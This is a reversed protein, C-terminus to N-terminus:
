NKLKKGSVFVEMVVWLAICGGIIVSVLVILPQIIGEVVFSPVDDGLVEVLANKEFKKSMWFPDMRGFQKHIYQQIDKANKKYVVIGNHIGQKASETITDLSLYGRAIQVFQRASEMVPNIRKVCVEEYVYGPVPRVADKYSDPIIQNYYGAVSGMQKHLVDHVAAPMARDLVDGHAVLMCGTGACLASYLSIAVLVGIVRRVLSGRKYRGDMMYSEDDDDEANLMIRRGMKKGQVEHSAPFENSEQKKASAPTSIIRSRHSSNEKRPTKLQEAASDLLRGAQDMLSRIGQPDSTEQM